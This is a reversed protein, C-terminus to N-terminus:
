EAGSGGDGGADTPPADCFTRTADRGDAGVCPYGARPCDSSAKCARYCKLQGDDLACLNGSGCDADATCSKLCQGGPDKTECFMGAQCDSTAAGPEGIAAGTPASSGGACSVAALVVVLPISRAM